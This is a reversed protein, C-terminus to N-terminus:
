RRHAADTAAFRVSDRSSVRFLNYFWGLDWDVLLRESNVEASVPLSTLREESLSIGTANVHLSYDKSRYSLYLPLIVQLNDNPQNLHIYLPSLTTNGNESQGSYFLPFILWSSRVPSSRTWILPILYAGFTNEGDRSYYYLPLAYSLLNDGNNRENSPHAYQAAGVERM